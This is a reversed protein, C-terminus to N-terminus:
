RHRPFHSRVYFLPTPTLFSDVPDFPSELNTPETERIILGLSASHRMETM